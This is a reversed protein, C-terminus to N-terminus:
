IWLMILVSNTKKKTKILVDLTCLEIIIEVIKKEYTNEMQTKTKSIWFSNEWKKPLYTSKKLNKPREFGRTWSYYYCQTPLAYRARSRMLCLAVRNGRRRPDPNFFFQGCYVSFILMMFIERSTQRHRGRFLFFVIAVGSPATIPPLWSTKARGTRHVYM